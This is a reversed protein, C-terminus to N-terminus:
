SEGSVSASALAVDDDDDLDFAWITPRSTSATESIRLWAASAIWGIGSTAVSETLDKTRPMSAMSPRMIPRIM